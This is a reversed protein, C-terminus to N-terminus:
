FSIEIGGTPVVEARLGDDTLPVITGVFATAGVGLSMKVAISLDVVDSRPISYTYSQPEINVGNPSAGDANRVLEATGNGRVEFRDDVFSSSGIVDALLAVNAFLQYAAGITYRVRNREPDDANVDFGLNGYLSVASGFPASAIISPTVVTDGLGQFDDEEGTPLRVSLVAAVDVAEDVFWYKTRVITDGVGFADGEARVRRSATRGLSALDACTPLTCGSLQYFQRGDMTLHTQILPLLVNVDWRATIGYTGFLSLENHRVAFTDFDTVSDLFVATDATTLQRVVDTGTFRGLAGGNV